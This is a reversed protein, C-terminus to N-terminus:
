HKIQPFFLRYRLQNVLFDLEPVLRTPRISGLPLLRSLYSAKDNCQNLVAVAQNIMWLSSRFATTTQESSSRKVDGRSLQGDRKTAVVCMYVAWKMSIGLRPVLIFPGIADDSCSPMRIFSEQIERRSRKVCIYGACMVYITPREPWVPLGIILLNVAADPRAKSVVHLSIPFPPPPIEM